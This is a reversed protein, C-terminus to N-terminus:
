TRGPSLSARRHRIPSRMTISRRVPNHVPLDLGLAIISYVPQGSAPAANLNYDPSLSLILHAVAVSLFPHSSPASAILSPRSPDYALDHNVRLDM